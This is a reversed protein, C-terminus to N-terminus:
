SRRCYRASAIRCLFRITWGAHRASNAATKAADTPAGATWDRAAIRSATAYLCQRRLEILRHRNRSGAQRSACDTGTFRPNPVPVGPSVGGPHVTGGIWLDTPYEVSNRRSPQRLLVPHATRIGGFASGGSAKPLRVCLKSALG